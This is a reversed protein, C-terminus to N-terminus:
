SVPIWADAFLSAGPVEWQAALDLDLSTDGVELVQRGFQRVNKLELPRGTKNPDLYKTTHTKDPKTKFILDRLSGKKASFPRVTLLVVKQGQLFDSEITRLVYPHKLEM